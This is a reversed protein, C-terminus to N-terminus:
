ERVPGPVAVAGRGGKTGPAQEAPGRDPGTALNPENGYFIDSICNGVSPGSQANGAAMSTAPFAGLAAVAAVAILGKRM